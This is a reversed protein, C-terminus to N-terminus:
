LAGVQTCGHNHLYRFCYHCPLYALPYLGYLDAYGTPFDIHGALAPSRNSVPFFPRLSLRSLVACVTGLKIVIGPSEPNLRLYSQHKPFQLERFMGNSLPSNFVLSGKALKTQENNEQELNVEAGETEGVDILDHKNEDQM